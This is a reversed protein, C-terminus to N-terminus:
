GGILEQRRKPSRVLATWATNGEVTAVAEASRVVLTENSLLGAWMGGQRRKARERVLVVARSPSRYPNTREKVM